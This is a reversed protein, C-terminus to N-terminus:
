KPRTSESYPRGSVSYPSSSGRRSYRSLTPGELKSTSSGDPGTSVTIKTRKQDLVIEAADRVGPPVDAGFGKSRYEVRKEGKEDAVMNVTSWTPACSSMFFFLASLLILFGFFKKLAKRYGKIREPRGLRFLFNQEVTM